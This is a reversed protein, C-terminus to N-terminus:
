PDNIKLASILEKLTEDIKDFCSIYDKFSKGCPDDIKLIPVLGWIGILTLQCGTRTAVDWAISLHSPDMIILLDSSNLEIDFLSRSKHSRLDKGRMLAAQLTQESASISFDVDIGCSTANLGLSAAAVEAYPSKCTNRLCIFVFRKIQRPYINKLLEQTESTLCVKQFLQKIPNKRVLLPVRESTPFSRIEKWRRDGERNRQNEHSDGVDHLGTCIWLVEPILDPLGFRAISYRLRNDAGLERPLFYSNCVAFATSFGMEEAIRIERPGFHPKMGLPYALMSFGHVTEMKLIELSKSLEFDVETKQLQPLVRHTHTHPAFSVGGNELRRIQDWTGPSFEDPPNNPIEVDAASELTKLFRDLKESSIASAIEILSRKVQRREANNKLTFNYKQQNVQLQIKDKKTNLIIWHIKADWPWLENNILGTILFITLPVEHKIFLPAILEIQDKYGDDMTFAISGGPLKRLGRAAEEIRKLSVLNFKEKKLKLIIKEITKLDHGEIGDYVGSVRHLLFVTIFDESYPSLASNIM